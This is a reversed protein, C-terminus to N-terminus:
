NDKIVRENLDKTIKNWDFKNFQELNVNPKKEVMEHSVDIWKDKDYGEVLKGGDKGATVEVMASNSATVVPCGCLFAELQPLGFGENLSSSVFCDAINYLEVLEQNSIFGCFLTSEKVFSDSEVIENISSNKWGRAGVVVLQIGYKEYLPTIISLLFPLNKRPELSGVFLVFKNKIGHKDKIINIEDAKLDLKRFLSRDTSCGVFIDRCKRKPFYYEVRGRTYDSIAWIIDASKVSRNFLLANALRNTWVMTDKFELNVVDNIIVITRVKQPIFYPLCPVPSFYTDIKYKKIYVPVMLFLFALNPLYKFLGLKAELFIVNPPFVVDNMSDVMKKPLVVFFTNEPCVTSWSMLVCRLVTSIGASSASFPRGDVLINM